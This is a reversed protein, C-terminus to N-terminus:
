LLAFLSLALQVLGNPMNGDMTAEQVSQPPPEQPPIHVIGALAPCGLALVLALAYLSKRM